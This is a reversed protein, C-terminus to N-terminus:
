YIGSAIFVKWLPVQDGYRQAFHRWLYNLLSFALSKHLWSARFGMFFEYATVPAILSFSFSGDCTGVPALWGRSDPTGDLKVLM